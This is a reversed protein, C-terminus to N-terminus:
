IRRYGQEDYGIRPKPWANWRGDYPHTREDLCIKAVAKKIEREITSQSIKLAAAVHEITKGDAIYTTIAQQRPTLREFRQKAEVNHEPSRSTEDGMIHVHQGNSTEQESRRTNKHLGDLVRKCANDIMLPLLDSVAIHMWEDSELLYLFWTQLGDEADEKTVRLRASTHRVATERFADAKEFFDIKLSEFAM